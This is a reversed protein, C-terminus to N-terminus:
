AGRRSDDDGDLARARDRVNRDELAPLQISDKDWLVALLPGSQDASYYQNRREPQGSTDNDRRKERNQQQQPQDDPRTANRLDRVRSQLEYVLRMNEYYRVVKGRAEYFGHTATNQLAVPRLDVHRLDRLKLGSVNLVLSLSFFAMGFSMAFRPQRLTSWAPVLVPRVWDALRQSWSRHAAVREEASEVGSTAALINHVLHRPPEIEPLSKLWSLGAQAQALLPGCDPCGAAHSKFTDMRPAELTGDIADALLAEFEICQMGNHTKGDM